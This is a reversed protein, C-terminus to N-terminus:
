YPVSPFYLVHHLQVTKWRNRTRDRSILGPNLPLTHSQTQVQDKRTGCHARTLSSQGSLPRGWTARRQVRFVSWSSGNVANMPGYCAKLGHQQCLLVSRRVQVAEWSWGDRLQESQQLFLQCCCRFSEEDLVCLSMEALSCPPCSSFRTWLTLTQSIVDKVISDFINLQIYFSVGSVSLRQWCM